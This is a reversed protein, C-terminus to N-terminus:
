RGYRDPIETSLRAGQKLYRNAATVATPTCERYIERFGRFGKNFNSILRAKREDTPEENAILFTMKERWLQEENSGCLERLYHLAGLIEALRMMQDDYAPPLVNIRPKPAETEATQGFALPSGALFIAFITIKM